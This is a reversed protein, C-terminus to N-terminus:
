ISDSASERPGGREEDNRVVSVRNADIVIWFFTVTDIRAPDKCRVYVM